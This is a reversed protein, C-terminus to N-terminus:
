LEKYDVFTLYQDIIEQNLICIQHNPKAYKLQGLAQEATIRGIMYDEVTDIVRDNAVGGEVFGYGCWPKEGKRSRIIFDLWEKNYEGMCLYNYGANITSQYDFDFINIIATPAKKILKVKRAWDFAQEEIRTLYFGKGFDLHERGVHALPREIKLISGHFLIM